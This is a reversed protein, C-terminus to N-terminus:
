FSLTELNAAIFLSSHATKPSSEMFSAGKNWDGLVKAGSIGCRSPKYEVGREQDLGVIPGRDCLKEAFM